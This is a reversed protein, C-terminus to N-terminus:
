ISVESTRHKDKRDKEQRAPPTLFRIRGGLHLVRRQDTTIFGIMVSKRLIRLREPTLRDGEKEEWLILRCDKDPAEMPDVGYLECIEVAEQCLPVRFLDVECGATGQRVSLEECAKWLARYLGGEGIACVLFFPETDAPAKQPIRGSGEQLRERLDRLFRRSFREKLEAEHIRLLEAAAESGPYGTLAIRIM